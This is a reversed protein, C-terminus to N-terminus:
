PIAFGKTRCIPRIRSVRKWRRGASIGNDIAEGGRGPTAGHLAAGTVLDRERRRTRCWPPRERDLETLMRLTVGIWLM